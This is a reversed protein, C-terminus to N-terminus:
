LVDARFKKYQTEWSNESGPVATFDVPLEDEENWSCIMPHLRIYETNLLQSSELM